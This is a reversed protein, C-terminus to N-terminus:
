LVERLPTNVPGFSGPITDARSTLLSSWSALVWGEEWPLPLAREFPM